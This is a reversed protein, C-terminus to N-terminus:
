LGIAGGATSVPQVAIGVCILTVHCGSAFSLFGTDSQVWPPCPAPRNVATDQIIPGRNVHVAIRPVLLMGNDSPVGHGFSSFAAPNPIHRISSPRWHEFRVPCQIGFAFIWEGNHTDWYKVSSFSSTPNLTITSANVSVNLIFILFCSIFTPFYRLSKM